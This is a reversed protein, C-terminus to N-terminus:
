RLRKYIEEFEKAISYAMNLLHAVQTMSTKAHSIQRLITLTMMPSAADTEIEGSWSKFAENVDLCFNLLFEEKGKVLDMTSPANWFIAEALERFENRRDILLRDLAAKIDQEEFGRKTLLATVM